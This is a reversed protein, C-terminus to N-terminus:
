HGRVGNIWRDDRHEDDGGQKRAHLPEHCRGAMERGCAARNYNATGLASALETYNKAIGGGGVAHAAAESAHRVCYFRFPKKLHKNLATTIAQAGDRYIVIDSIDLEPLNQKVFRLFTDFSKDCENDAFHGFALVM